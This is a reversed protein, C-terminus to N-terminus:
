DWPKVRIVGTDTVSVRFFGKEFVGSQGVPGCAVRFVNGYQNVGEPWAMKALPCHYGQKKIEATLFIRKDEPLTAAKTEAAQRAEKAKQRAPDPSYDNFFVIVGFVIFLTVLWTVASTKKKQPAGCHPCATSKKSIKAGCEKCNILAM